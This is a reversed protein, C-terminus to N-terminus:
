ALDIRRMHNDFEVAGVRTIPEITEGAVRMLRGDGASALFGADTAGALGCGDRLTHAAHLAKRAADFVFVTGGIPSSAAIATGDRSAVVSGIYNRALPAVADPFPLLLAEGDADIRGVLPPRRGKEGEWQCGFWLAGSGDFAMHRTSLQNLGAELRTEGQLEGSASDIRVISPRMDAVNLKQRGFEPHTEIGGNAVVLTRGDPALLIEHSDMGHTEFEGIRGYGGSADYVGIVGRPQEGTFVNETTYLLRGDASFAGHGFFHHGEPPRITALPTLNRGDVVVAFYGPRRAFVAVRHHAADVAIDHGRGALPMRGIERGHEDILLLAHQRPGVRVSSLFVAHEAVGSETEFGLVAALGERMRRFLQAM